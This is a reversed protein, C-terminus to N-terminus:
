RRVATHLDFANKKEPAEFVIRVINQDLVAMTWKKNEMQALGDKAEPMYVKIFNDYAKKAESYNEYRIYLLLMADKDNIPYEALLCDTKPNLFLINENAIYYKRELVLSTHFYRTRKMDLNEKPIYKMITPESGTSPLVKDMIKGLELVAKEAKEGGSVALISVFMSGKWFRLLGGGYDSGQGIGAEADERESSFIGYADASTGMDYIDMVIEGNNPGTYKRSSVQRFDYALYLEAGGDIYKYITQRDYSQTKGDSKWEGFQRPISQPQDNM